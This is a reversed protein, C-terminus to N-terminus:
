NSNTSNFEAPTGRRAITRAERDWGRNPNPTENETERSRRKLPMEHPGGGRQRGGERGLSSPPIELMFFGWM